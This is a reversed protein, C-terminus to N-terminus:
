YVVCKKNVSVGFTLHICTLAGYAPRKDVLAGCSFPKSALAGYAFPKNAADQAPRKGALVEFALPKSALVGYAFPMNAVDQAPCKSASASTVLVEYALHKCVCRVRLAPLRGTRSTSALEGYM